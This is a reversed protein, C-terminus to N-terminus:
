VSHTRHEHKGKEEKDENMIKLFIAELDPFQKEITEITSNNQRLIDILEFLQKGNELQVDIFSQEYDTEMEILEFREELERRHNVDLHGSLTLRYAWANFLKLLNSIKDDVVVRGHNILIVRDCISEIVDMDHSSILLTHDGSTTMEKLYKRLEHSMEVDLGLTPEDLLLIETRKALACALALKQQMGRSLLRTPTNAKENLDFLDLLDPIFARAERRPIGHLGAFFELNELPTLPWYVNRNGELVAAIKKLVVYPKKLADIGCIRIEGKTPRVLTCLCKIITTKGAGNPGLLGVIGNNELSFNIDKVAIMDEKRRSRYVKTLHLAELSINNM